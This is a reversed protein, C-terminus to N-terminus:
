EYYDIDGILYPAQQAACLLSVPQGLKRGHFPAIQSFVPNALFQIFPRPLTLRINLEFAGGVSAGAPQTVLNM